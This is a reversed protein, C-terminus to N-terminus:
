IWWSNKNRLRGLSQGQDEEESSIRIRGEQAKVTIKLFYAKDKSLLSILVMNLLMMKM